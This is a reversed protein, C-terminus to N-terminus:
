RRKMILKIEGWGDAHMQINEPDERKSLTIGHFPSILALVFMLGM